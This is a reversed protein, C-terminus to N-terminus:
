ALGLAAAEESNLDRSQETLAKMREPGLSAQAKARCKEVASRYPEPVPTQFQERIAEAAGLMKAATEESGSSARLAALSELCEAIGLRNGIDARITLSERLLGEAKRDQRRMAVRGQEYLNLAMGWRGHATVLSDFGRLLVERGRTIEGQEALVAGLYTQTWALLAPHGGGRDWLAMGEELLRLAREGDGRLRALCARNVLAWSLLVRDEVLELICWAEEIRESARELDSHMCEVWCLNTLAFGIGRQDGIERRLDLGRQHYRVARPYDGIHGAVWGLNNLSLAMERKEGLQQNLILAERSLARAPGFESLASHAWALNNLAKAM